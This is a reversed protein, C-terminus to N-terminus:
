SKKEEELRRRIAKGKLLVFDPLGSDQCYDFIFEKVSMKVNKGDKGIPVDIKDNVNIPNDNMDTLDKSDKLCYMFAKKNASGEQVIELNFENSEEDNKARRMKMESESAPYSVILLQAQKKKDANEPWSYWQPEAGTLDIQFM